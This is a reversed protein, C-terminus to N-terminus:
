VSVTCFVKGDGDDGRSGCSWDLQGREVAGPAVPAIEYNLDRGLRAGHSSLLSLGHTGPAVCAKGLELLCM